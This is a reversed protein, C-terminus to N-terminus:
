ARRRKRTLGYLAQATVFYFIFSQAIAAIEFTVDSNLMAAKAGADLYAFLLAAPIVGLPNNKAILAVAIGNWGMGWSFGEITARYTGLVMLGGGLGHLAGSMIMPIVLYKSVNIGGYRSFERNLGCMRMEYGAHSKYMFLFVLLAAALAFFASINLKSPTFIKLLGYQPGIALTALLNNKPDDLPGTIFYNVVLVVASSLLFSSIMEDTNWKMRFYGSLGAITGSLVMAGALASLGGLWGNAAPLALCVATAALGGAYIQGEGGLNFVSSKFAVSIGLGTFVLPVAVNLMNGLYYKNTFAGLFFYYITRGPTRSLIFILGIVLAFSLLLTLALGTFGAFLEGFNRKVKVATRGEEAAGTPAFDDRLGLMYEGIREKTLDPVNPLFAVVRGRYMVAIMDAIGLIEDLNSSIFLIGAGAKRMELIKEYVFQSSAVDLGWTPESVIVLNSATALERALIVKQINGGSLTGIPVRPGGDISFSKTLREAFQQIKGGQPLGGEPLPSPQDRDHEGDGHVAPELRAGCGTRPCTRM